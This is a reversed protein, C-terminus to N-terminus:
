CVDPRFDGPARRRATGARFTAALETRLDEASWHANAKMAGFVETVRALAIRIRDRVTLACEAGRVTDVHQLPRLAILEASM